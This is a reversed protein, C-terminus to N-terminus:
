DNNNQSKNFSDIIKKAFSLLPRRNEGALGILEVFLELGFIMGIILLFSGLQSSLPFLLAILSFIFALGYIVLVTQKHSLGLVMLRHHMHDKDAASIPMRNLYRRLIAYVTDTIPIGLIIIPMLVSIFTANKIGYLSFASIMFGLFLAGTDGLFISAPHFNYPWFGLAAAVLTFILITVLVNQEGVFFYAIIGMTTMAIISVGNALGDLGDILNIANTIAMIWILTLPLSFIGLEIEGFFPVTISDMRLGGFYYIILGAVIIGLLKMKPSIEKIDDVIGTIVIVTAGFFMPLLYTNSIPQLFFMGIFFSLYIAFGGMTPMEKKNVRRKDPKDTAGVIFALQRVLPTILLALIGTGVWALVVNFM